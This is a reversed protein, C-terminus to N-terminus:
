PKKKAADCAEIRESGLFGYLQILWLDNDGLGKGPMLLLMSPKSQM